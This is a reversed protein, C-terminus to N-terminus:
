RLKVKTTGGGTPGAGLAVGVVTNTSTTAAASYGASISSTVLRDGPNVTGTTLCLVWGSDYVNVISGTSAAAAAVGIVSPQDTAAAAVSVTLGQGAVQTTAILVSGELAATVGGLYATYVAGQSSGSTTTSSVATSTSGYILDSAAAIGFNGSYYGTLPTWRLTGNTDYIGTGDIVLNTVNTGSDVTASRAIAIAIVAVLPLIFVYKKFLNMLKM